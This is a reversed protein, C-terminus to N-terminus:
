LRKSLASSGRSRHQRARVRPRQRLICSARREGGSNRRCCHRWAVSEFRLGPFQEIGAGLRRQM